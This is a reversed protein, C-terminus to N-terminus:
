WGPVLIVRDHTAWCAEPVTVYLQIEVPESLKTFPAVVDDTELM